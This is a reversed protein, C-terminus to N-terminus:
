VRAHERIFVFKREAATALLLGYSKWYYWYIETGGRKVFFLKPHLFILHDLIRLNSLFDCSSHSQSLEPGCGRRDTYVVREAYTYTIYDNRHLLM